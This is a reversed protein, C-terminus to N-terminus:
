TSGGPTCIFNGSPEGGQQCFDTGCNASSGSCVEAADCPNARQRCVTEPGLFADGPCSGSTGTCSEAVDCVGAIPRCITTASKFGDVCTNATGSCSDTGDCLGGNSAGVCTTTAPAFGDAPCGGSTGNCSEAVDCQGASARCITTSSKYGDVCVGSANCSDTGDCPGGNSTGVCTTTAPAKGDAPCTSSTGTCSEAVDCQGASARCITTASKFGDVCAGNGDCSDTGDCAGSNSSGVCPTTAPAKGDAPCTNTTGDCTDAVDCQGSAARCVTTTPQKTDTCGATTGDCTDAADCVGSAARCITGANGPTYVCHATLNGPTGLVECSDNTCVNDDNCITTACPNLQTTVVLDTCDCKSGTGAQQLTQCSVKHNANQEWVRCSPIRLENNVINCEVTADVTWNVPGASARLDGCTDATSPTSSHSTPDINLFLDTDADPYALNDGQGVQAAAGSCAVATSPEQVTGGDRSVFLGLDYRENSTAAYATTIRLQITDTSSSCLDNNLISVAKVTTTVDSATCSNLNSPCTVSPLAVPNVSFLGVVHDEPTTIQISSFDKEPKGLVTLNYGFEVLSGNAVACATGADNCGESPLIAIPLFRTGKGEAPLSEFRVSGINGVADIDASIRLDGILREGPRQNFEVVVTGPGGSPGRQVGAYLVEHGLKDITRFAYADKLIASSARTQFAEWTDLFDPVGNAVPEGGVGIADTWVRPSHVQFLGNVAPQISRVSANVGNSAYLLGTTEPVAAVAFTCAALLLFLSVSICRQAFRDRNM